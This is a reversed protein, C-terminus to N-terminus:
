VDSLVMSQHDFHILHDSFQQWASPPNGAAMEAPLCHWALTEQHEPHKVALWAAHLYLRNDALSASGANYPAYLPDGLIPAGTASLHVRLQHTRGTVPQLAALWLNNHQSVRIWHTTCPKTKKATVSQFPSSPDDKGLPLTITGQHTKPPQHCLAWYHKKIHRNRFQEFLSREAKKGRAFVMVGSTDYDLRHVPKTEPFLAQLQEAMSVGLHPSRAPVSLMNAPKNVVILHYDCYLVEVPRRRNDQLRQGLAKASDTAAQTQQCHTLTAM